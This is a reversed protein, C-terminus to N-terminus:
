GRAVEAVALEHFVKGTAAHIAQDGTHRQWRRVAVDVYLPDIEMGYCIRGVREAAILTTGSGLFTDLVIDGRASCDLIADAVLAVPKVTPHLALLNGEDGQKSFTNVGPYSWVNTRYRGYKGLQINNRHPAKGHKFVAVHEHQSRYLSGLGGTHKSWVCLNLLEEYTQKGAALLEQMHRWDMCVFHVSGSASHQCLLEFSTKLFSTFEAKSMEGAAMAFERYQIPGKGGINAVNGDIKVNYPPDIFVMDARCGQMLEAYSSEDLANGCFLRHKGLLWLDGPTTIAPGAEVQDAADDPDPEDDKAEELVLDIEAMEFGTITVDFDSEITLLHQLEIALISKDWVAVEALRNDAIMFARVQNETLNELQITPVQQMGLLKAAALRCHGALVMQKSDLLIPVLFGFSKISNALLRIQKRPHARSNRACPVLNAVPRYVISLGAIQNSNM